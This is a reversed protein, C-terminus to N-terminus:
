LITSIFFCLFTKYYTTNKARGYTYLSLFVCCCCVFVGFSRGCLASRWSMPTMNGTGQLTSAPHSVADTLFRCLNSAKQIRRHEDYRLSILALLGAHAVRCCFLFRYNCRRKNRNSQVTIAPFIHAPPIDSPIGQAIIQHIYYMPTPM